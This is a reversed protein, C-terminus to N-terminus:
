NARDVNNRRLAIGALLALILGTAIIHMTSQVVTRRILRRATGYDRAPSWPQSRLNRKTRPPMWGAAVNHQAITRTGLGNSFCQYSFHQGPLGTSDPEPWDLAPTNRCNLRLNAPVLM